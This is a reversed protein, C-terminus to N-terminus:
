GARPLSVHRAPRSSRVILRDCLADIAGRQRVYRGHLRRCAHEVAIVLADLERWVALDPPDLSAQIRRVRDLLMQLDHLKGLVDQGRKLQVCNWAGIPALRM